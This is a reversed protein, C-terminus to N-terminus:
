LVSASRKFLSWIGELGRGRLARGKEWARGDTYFGSYPKTDRKSNMAGNLGSHFWCRDGVEQLYAMRYTKMDVKIQCEQM